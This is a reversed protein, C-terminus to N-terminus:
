ATETSSCRDRDSQAASWAFSVGEPVKGRRSHTRCAFRASIPDSGWCGSWVAFMISDYTFGICLHVMCKRSYSAMSLLQWQAVSEWLIFRHHLRHTTALAMEGSASAPRARSSKGSLFLSNSFHTNINTSTLYVCAHVCVYVDTISICLSVGTYFRNELEPKTDLFFTQAKKKKVSQM